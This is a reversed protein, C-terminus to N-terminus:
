SGTDATLLVADLAVVDGDPLVRLPNIELEEASHTAAFASSLEVLLRVLRDAQLTPGGRFGDFLRRGPLTGLLVRADARSLPALGVAVQELVEATTGGLGLVVVPGFVPDRRLGLLLEPGGPAQEEVLVQRAGTARIANWADELEEGTRVGVVVGGVDSKHVVAPDLLKVVVTGFRALADHAHALEDCVARAPVRVFPQLLRKVADEDAREPLRLPATEVAEGPTELRARARSDADWVRLALTLEAASGVIPRGRMAPAVRLAAVDAAAGATGVVVPLEHPLEELVAGLDFADPELLAYVAVGDIQDDDAVTRVVAGFGSSPRGTDVPNRLYTMPPLLQELADVTRERLEPLAVDRARAGDALLLGPGAQATVVGFGPTIRAPLRHRALVSVADLLDRDDDVVVAGAQALAARTTRWSTALAGTHSRAFDGIDAQGLVLAVVPVRPVIARIADVLARGDDVAEVHLAVATAEDDQALHELVDAQTVDIAGGVGVGLRVGLGRAALGFTLAHNVGGSTAVVAVGGPQVTRAGPVFSATLARAPVFFGSTNPGLLRVDTRALADELARQHIEGAGGIEAFGGACVLVAGAGAAGAEEVVEATASAPVCSVVLDLVDPLAAAAAALTPHLGAPEDPRRSNVRAVPITGERLTAAMVSGLKTPDASAGVVAIGRPAFLADLRGTSV